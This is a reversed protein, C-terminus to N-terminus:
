EGHSNLVAVGSPLSHLGRREFRGVEEAVGVNEVQHLVRGRPLDTQADEPLPHVFARPEGFVIRIRPGLLAVYECALEELAEV